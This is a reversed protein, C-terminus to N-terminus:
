PIAQYTVFAIRRGDPSWCPVNITGQGGFFEALVEIMGTDLTMMRLTVDKNEPHGTVDKEYSLFVLRRGDPSPHPFWNNFEDAVVAEQGSGDARMRWIQMRGARDSNFYLHEGDPAYEPGDDLGEATTLRTEPGGVAPITYIDFEGGREACYALTKGDPSWGHWYSPGTPTVLKPTGGDIPLTYILSQRKGQSQDSIALRTGDPSLGHDNNCRTAFGTDVPQPEGGAAPIRAIRGGSNYILTRGDRLWNPAEIRTPTVHVVRRDTSSITQTELASFVVPKEFRRPPPTTLEVNSFVARETVDKDHACVGIGVYFPAELVIRVAAGSFSPERGEAALSMTVYRGRKEIRLRRPASVNAQVEHTAAGKAPRFQLSTLGDGHLAVDVYASDASLDQRIMLCAKRHPDKGRGLFAIDAALALDGPAKKWAFHFADKTSWMNEGGGAVTYTRKTADHDVSGPHLVAGVDAHGQFMGADADPSQASPPLVAATEAGGLTIGAVGAFALIAVGIATTRCKM